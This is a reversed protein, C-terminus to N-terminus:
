RVTVRAPLPDPVTVLEGDPMLQPDVQAASKVEPAVTPMIAVGAAPDVKAPQDPAHVPVPPQVTVILASRLTVAVNVAEVGPPRVIVAVVVGCVMEGPPVAFVRKRILLPPVPGACLTARVTVSGVPAVGIEIVGLAPPQEPKVFPRAVHKNPSM